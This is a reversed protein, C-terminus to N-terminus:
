KQSKMWLLEAQQVLYINVPMFILTHAWAIQLKIFWQRRNTTKFHNKCNMKKRQRKNKISAGRTALVATTFYFTCIFDDIHPIWIVFLIKFTLLKWCIFILFCVSLYINSCIISHSKTTPPIDSILGIIPMSWFIWICTSYLFFIVSFLWYSRLPKQQESESCMRTLM